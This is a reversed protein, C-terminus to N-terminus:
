GAVLEMAGKSSNCLPCAIQGNEVTTRGGKSWPSKHDAEWNDWDVKTGDCKLRLQCLGNDRRFIALRQERTFVRRDDKQVLDPVSEFFKRLLYDHRWSISDMADTSHSTKEHYVIVENDAEDQPLCSQERRWKEFDLFWQRVDAERGHMVYKELLYSVMTYLSIVNYRELEPTKEPFAGRLCDLVRLVKRAKPSKEDFSQNENYMKNLNANKVNTPGGMLEILTIQAAVHDHAYRSNNFGVSQFFPHSALSKIFHQMKGPMANRKEQAKLSTGNQLRLFMERIEDEDSHQVIVVDLAYTDFAMRLDDDLDSYKKAAIAITGIPDSDKPLGFEGAQFEWIARLRQQGDIVDYHDPNSSVKYWYLKPIDYGRLITDVLLQKQARSWVSPRQFDPNTNIRDKVGCVTTLAWPKKSTEM